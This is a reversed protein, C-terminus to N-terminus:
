IYLNGARDVALQAPNYLQASEAPRGDGNFGPVGTGAVTTIIGNRDVRRVRHNESDPIYLTGDGSVAISSPSLPPLSFQALVAPGGDGSFGTTRNGAITMIIGSPTVKRIRPVRSEEIYLNGEDDVAVSEPQSIQA